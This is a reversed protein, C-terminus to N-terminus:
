AVSGRAARAIVVGVMRGVSCEVVQAREYTDISTELGGRATLSGAQRGHGDRDPALLGLEVRSYLLLREIRGGIEDDM